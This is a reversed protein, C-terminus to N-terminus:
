YLYFLTAHTHTHTRIHTHTRTLAHPRAPTCAASTCAHHAHPHSYEHKVTNMARRTWSRAYKHTTALWKSEKSILAMWVNGLTKKQFNLVGVWQYRQYRQVMYHEYRQDMYGARIKNRLVQIVECTCHSRLPLCAWLLNVAHKVHMDLKTWPTSRLCCRGEDWESWKRQWEGTM